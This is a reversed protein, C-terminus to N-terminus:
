RCLEETTLRVAPHSAEKGSVILIQASEYLSPKRAVPRDGGCSM